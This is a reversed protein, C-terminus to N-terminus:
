YKKIITSVHFTYAIEIQLSNLYVYKHSYIRTSHAPLRHPIAYNPHTKKQIYILYNEQLFGKITVDSIASLSPDNTSLLEYCM